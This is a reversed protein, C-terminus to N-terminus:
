NEAKKNKEIYMCSAEVVYSFAVLLLTTGLIALLLAICLIANEDGFENKPPNAFVCIFGLLLYIWPFVKTFSIILNKM